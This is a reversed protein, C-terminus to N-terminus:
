SEAELRLLASKTIEGPALGDADYGNWPDRGAAALAAASAGGGIAWRLLRAAFESCFMAGNDRGQLKASTFALLGRWDYPQGKVTEFWARAAEWDCSVRLRYVAGLDNSRFPFRGVGVGDRAALSFGAGDYVEVHAWRSWSKVAILWGFFGRPRYLLVDGPLLREPVIPM